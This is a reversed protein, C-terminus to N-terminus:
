RPLAARLVGLYLGTLGPPLADLRDFDYSGSEIGLLAQEAWLFNGRARRGCAASPKRRPFEAQRCVAGAARAPGPPPRPVARHRRPQRARRGPDGRGAPRELARLVDPEKRTTAVVRLWGPLRELRAPSLLTSSRPGERLALAEDLADILIYRAGGAPTPVKHLPNLIGEEFRAPRTPRAGPRASRPRSRRTTSSAPTARRAPQRDHRCPGPHVPRPPADGAHRGPLLPLGAGPRRPQM